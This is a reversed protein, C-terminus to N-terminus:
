SIGGGQLSACTVPGASSTLPIGRWTAENKDNVVLDPQTKEWLKKKAVKNAGHPAANAFDGWTLREGPVAGEPATLLQVTRADGEGGDNACLLMGASKVGAMNRPKLNAVVVVNAGEIDSESLYPVLGSCITRPGEEEACDVEEIYLKEADPHKRVSLVRGVVLSMGLVDESLATAGEAPASETGVPGDDAAGEAEAAAEKKDVKPVKVYPKEWTQCEAYMDARAAFDVVDDPRLPMRWADRYLKVSQEASALDVENLAGMWQLVGHVKPTWERLEEESVELFAMEALDKLDPLPPPPLPNPEPPLSTDQELAIALREKLPVLETAPEASARVRHASRTRRAASRRAEARAPGSASAALSRVSANMSAM